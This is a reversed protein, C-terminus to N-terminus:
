KRLPMLVITQDENVFPSLDYDGFLTDIKFHTIYEDSFHGENNGFDVFIRIYGNDGNDIIRNTKIWKRGISLPIVRELDPISNDTPKCYKFSDKVVDKKIMFCGNTIWTDNYFYPVERSKMEFKKPLNHLM